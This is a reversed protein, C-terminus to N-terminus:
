DEEASWSPDSHPGWLDLQPFMFEPRNGGRLDAPMDYHRAPVGYAVTWPPVDKTVVSGGGILAGAGITIGPFITCGGGISVDDEVTAGKVVMEAASRRIPFRDNLFNVGPGVFVKSGLKTRSPIYVHAMIKTGSGIEVKGELTVRSMFTVRDALRCQARVICFYGCQFHHGIVTDCYIVAYPRVIADDGLELPARWGEYTRGLMAPEEIRCNTGLNLTPPAPQTDAGM